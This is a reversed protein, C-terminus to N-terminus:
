CKICLIYVIPDLIYFGQIKDHDKALFHWKIFKKKFMLNVKKERLFCGPQIMKPGSVRKLIEKTM